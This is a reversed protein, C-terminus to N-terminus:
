MLLDAAKTTRHLLASEGFLLHDLRQALGVGRADSLDRGRPPHLDRRPAVGMPRLGILRAPVFERVTTM